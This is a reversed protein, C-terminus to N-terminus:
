KKGGSFQEEGERLPRFRLASWTPDVAIQSIPRLGYEALIPWLSDRNIDAKNGKPYLVWLLAPDALRDEHETLIERVAAASDAFVIAATAEHPTPSTRVGEPLPGVLAVRDPHSCWLTTHPKIQLKEAVTKTPM